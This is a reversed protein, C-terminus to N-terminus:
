NVQLNEMAFQQSDGPPYHKKEPGGIVERELQGQQVAINM